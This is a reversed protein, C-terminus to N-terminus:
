AWTLEVKLYLWSPFEVGEARSTYVSSCTMHDHKRSLNVKAGLGEAQLRLSFLPARFKVMSFLQSERYVHGSHNSLLWEALSQEFHLFM